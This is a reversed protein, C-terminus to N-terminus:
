ELICGRVPFVIVHVLPAYCMHVCFVVFVVLISAGCRTHATITGYGKRSNSYVCTDSVKIAFVIVRGVSVMNLFQVMAKDEHELYTDFVRNALLRGQVAM